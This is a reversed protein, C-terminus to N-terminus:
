TEEWLEEDLSLIVTELSVTYYPYLNKLENKIEEYKLIPTVVICDVELMEDGPYIYKSDETAFEQVELNRDMIYCVQVRSDQLERYLHKGFMGLGYIAVSHIGRKVFYEDISLQNDRHTLWLDLLQNLYPAGRGNIMRNRYEEARKQRIDRLHIAIEPKIDHNKELLDIMEFVSEDMKDGDASVNDGTMTHLYLVQNNFHFSKNCLKMLYWLYYDDAGNKHLINQTWVTPISEKRILVQGPSVIANIGDQYDDLRDLRQMQAHNLYILRSRNKGNCVVVDGAGIYKLQERLYVSSIRDDQDLFCIYEGSAKQLGNVRSQHIGVNRENELVTIKIKENRDNCVIKQQPDDNVLILEVQCEYEKIANAYNDETMKILNSIYKNGRYIPVIFSIDVM